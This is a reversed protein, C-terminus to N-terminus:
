LVIPLLVVATLITLFWFISRWGLTETLLGGLFPGLAPGIMSGSQFIAM